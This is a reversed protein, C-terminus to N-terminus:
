KSPGGGRWTHLGRAIRTLEVPKADPLISRLQDMVKEQDRDTIALIDKLGVTNRSLLALTGQLAEPNDADVESYGAYAILFVKVTELVPEEASRAMKISQKPQRLAPQTTNEFNVIATVAKQALLSAARTSRPRPPPLPRPQRPKRVPRAQQLQAKFEDVTSKLNANIFATNQLIRAERELEYATKAPPVFAMSVFGAIDLENCDIVSNVGSLLM